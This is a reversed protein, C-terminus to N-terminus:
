LAQEDGRIGVDVQQSGAGTGDYVMANKLVYDYEPPTSCSLALGSALILIFILQKM